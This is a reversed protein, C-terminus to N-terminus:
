IVPRFKYFVKPAFRLDLYELSRNNKTLEEVLAPSSLATLANRAAIGLDGDSNVLIKFKDETNFINGVTFSYDNVGLSELQYIVFGGFINRPLSMELDRRSDLLQALKDLVLPKTGLPNAALSQIITFFVHPSFEPASAFILGQGDSLYCETPAGERCWRIAPIREKVELSLVPHDFNSSLSFSLKDANIFKKAIQERIEMEPYLWANRRPFFLFRRGSLGQQITQSLESANIVRTGSIRVDSIKFVTLNTVVAFTVFLVFIILGSWLWKNLVRRKKIKRSQRLIDEHM